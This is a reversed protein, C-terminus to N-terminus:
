HSETVSSLLRVSVLKSIGEEEMTVGYLNDAIEMTRRNHTVLIFQTNVSHVRIMRTFRDINADDLPADVEDFVCFPSPKVQYLAFLLAIATMTKEGGSMLSLSKLRKGSPNAWITIDAELLDTGSIILDAEGAPFFEEFLRQFHSRVTEFTHLLRAQATENIRAITDELTRKAKLLDERQAIMAELRASESEYEEMALSNIPGLREIKQKLEQVAEPSTELKLLDSYVAEIDESQVDLNWQLRATNAVADLEGRLRAVETEIRRGGALEDSHTERLDRLRQEEEAIRVRIEDLRVAVKDAAAAQEDRLRYKEVSLGDIERLRNEIAILDNAAQEASTEAATLNEEIEVISQRLRDVEAKALDLRHQVADRDRECRHVDERCRASEAQAANLMEAHHRHIEEAQASEREVDRMAAEADAIRRHCDSIQDDLSVLQKAVSNRREELTALRTECKVRRDRAVALEATLGASQNSLDSISHEIEDLLTRKAVNEQHLTESEREATEIARQLEEMQKRLGLDLPIDMEESGGKFRGMGDFWQGDLTVLTCHNEKAWDSHDLLSQWDEVVVVRSLFHEVISSFVSGKILSLATGLTGAPADLPPSPPAAFERVALFTTQGAHERRLMDIAALASQTSDVVFYHVAPGLATQLALRFKDDVEITDGLLEWTGDAPHSRLTQLAKHSRPGKEGLTALLRLRARSAEALTVVHRKADNLRSLEAEVQKRSETLRAVEAVITQVSVELSATQVTAAELDSALADREALSSTMEDSLLEKRSAWGASQVALDAVARRTEALRRLQSERQAASEAAEAHVKAHQLESTEMRSSAERVLQEVSELEARISVSSNEAVGLRSEILSRKESFLQRERRVREITQRGAQERARLGAEEAELTSIEAVIESLKRRQEAASREVDTEERRYELLKAEELRITSQVTDTVASAKSLAEELPALETQLRQYHRLILATEAARLQASLEAYRRARLAQRKLSAVQREVETLIDALRALDDDTQKLKLLAQRRRIKYKAVGAAEEFLARRGEGEERLIDEVMKLELITYLNPGMGSDHLLDTIDRLRRQNGNLLYESTGDRFLRRAIAVETFSTDLLGKSNDLTIRVEAAGAPKRTATGNFIVNEMREGRLVSSRQEGLVWRLADVINSKGCGNPGVVATVGPAFTLETAKAFSKFGNISLSLLQM